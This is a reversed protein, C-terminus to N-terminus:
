KNDIHTKLHNKYNPNRINNEDFTDGIFEYDIRPVPISITNEQLDSVITLKNKHVPYIIDRLFAQDVGYYGGKSKIFKTYQDQYNIDSPKFACMGAMIPHKVIAHNTTHAPHDRITMVPTSMSIWKNVAWADRESLRSDTDRSINIEVDPEDITFFRAGTTNIERGLSVGCVEVGHMKKLELIAPNDMNDHTTYFRCVWGSFHIDRLRINELAGVYYKRNTGFLCYSIVRKM